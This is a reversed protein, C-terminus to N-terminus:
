SISKWFGMRCRKLYFCGCRHFAQSDQWQWCPGHVSGSLQTPLFPSSLLFSLSFLMNLEAWDDENGQKKEHIPKWTDIWHILLEETSRFSGSIFVTNAVIACRWGPFVQQTSFSHSNSMPFMFWGDALTILTLHM